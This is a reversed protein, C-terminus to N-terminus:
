GASERGVLERARPESAPAPCGEHAHSFRAGTTSLAPERLGRAKAHRLFFIGKGWWGQRSRRRSVRRRQAGSAFFDSHAFVNSFELPPHRQQVIQPFMVPSAPGRAAELQDAETRQVFLGPRREIDVRSFINEVTVALPKCTASIQNANEDVQQGATQGETLAESAEIWLGSCFAHSRPPARDLQRRRDVAVPDSSRLAASDRGARVEVISGQNSFQADHNRQLLSTQATM